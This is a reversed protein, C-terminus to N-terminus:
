HRTRSRWFPTVAARWQRQRKPREWRWCVVPLECETLKIFKDNTLDIQNIHVQQHLLIHMKNSESYPKVGWNLNSIFSLLTPALASSCTMPGCCLMRLVPKVNPTWYFNLTDHSDTADCELALFEFLTCQRKWKNKSSRAITQVVSAERQDGPTACSLEPCHQSLFGYGTWFDSVSSYYPKVSHSQSRRASWLNM